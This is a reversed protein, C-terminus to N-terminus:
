PLLEKDMGLEMQIISTFPAGHSGTAAMTNAICHFRDTVVVEIIFNM